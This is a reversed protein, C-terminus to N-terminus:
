PREQHEVIKGELGAPGDNHGPNGGVGGTGKSGFLISNNEDIPPGDKHLVGASVGGAGGAGAGGDGGKGGFGGACGGGGPVSGGGKSGLYGVHGNAGNGAKAAMLQSEVLKVPAGFALLAISSGGARGGGGGGGGCGGCSGGGGGGGGVDPRHYAGGGGGGGQGPGGNPGDEGDGTKWGSPGLVGRAPSPADTAPPAPAGNGGGGRNDACERETGGKGWAGLASSIMPAGDAGDLPSHVFSSSGDGGKGGTSAGGTTCTCTKSAGGVGGLGVLTPPNGEPSAPSSIGEVAVAGETGDVGAGAKIQVRKFTVGPSKSVFVAISSPSEKTGARAEFALGEFRLIKNVSDVQLAYGAEAPAINPKARADPTWTECAFGGFVHVNTEFKLKEAYLGSGCVYVRRRGVSPGKGIAKAITRLPKDRTGEDLDDGKAGDVFLAFSDVRCGTAEPANSDMDPKCDPPVPADGSAEPGGGDDNGEVIPTARACTGDQTCDSPDMLCAGATLAAVIV